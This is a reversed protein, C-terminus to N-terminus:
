RQLTLLCTQVLRISSTSHTWLYCLLTGHAACYKTSLCEKAPEQVDDGRVHGQPSPPNAISPTIVSAGQM